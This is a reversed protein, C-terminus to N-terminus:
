VPGSVDLHLSNPNHDKNCRLDNNSPSFLESAMGLLAIRQRCEEPNRCPQLSTATRLFYDFFQAFKDAQEYMMFINNKKFLPKLYLDHNNVSYMNHFLLHSPGICLSPIEYVWAACQMSSHTGLFFCSKEILKVGLRPSCRIIKVNDSEYTFREQGLVFIKVGSADAAWQVLNDVNVGASLNRPGASAFPHFIGYPPLTNELIFRENDDLWLSPTVRPYQQLNTIFSIDNPLKNNKFKIEDYLYTKKFYPNNKVFDIGAKCESSLRLEIDPTSMLLYPLYCGPTGLFNLIYDGLGGGLTFSLKM